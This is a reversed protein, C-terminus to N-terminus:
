SFISYYHYTVAITVYFVAFARGALLSSFSRYKDRLHAAIGLLVAGCAFGLATRMGEGLWDNDIAYKVFFGVGLILVFIGIKGFLNEGIYKEYDTKHHEKRPQEVAAASPKEEEAPQPASPAPIEPADPIGPAAPEPEPATAPMAPLCTQPSEPVPKPAPKRCVASHEEAALDSGHAPSEEPRPSEPGQPAITRDKAVLQRRLDDINRRLESVGNLIVCILVLMLVLLLILFTEM